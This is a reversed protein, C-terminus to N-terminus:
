ETLIDFCRVNAQCAGHHKVFTKGFGTPLLTFGNKGILVVELIMRNKKKIHFPWRTKNQKKKVIAAMSIVKAAAVSAAM